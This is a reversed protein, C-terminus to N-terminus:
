SATFLKAIDNYFVFIMLSVLIILGIQQCIEM